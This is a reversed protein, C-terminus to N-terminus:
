LYKVLRWHNQEEVTEYHLEDLLQRALFLGYGKVQPQSLDPEVVTALDFTSGRDYLDITFRKSAWAVTVVIRIQGQEHGYAHEIINNCVEHVALQLNYLLEETIPFEDIRELIARISSGIMNLYRFKAPVDIRITDTLSENPSENLSENLSMPFDTAEIKDGLWAPPSVSVPLHRCRM